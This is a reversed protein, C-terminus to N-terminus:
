RTARPTTTSTLPEAAGCSRLPVAPHSRGVAETIVDVITTQLRATSRPTFAKCVLRRLRNHDAGDRSLLGTTVKDWLRGCTIGQAELALGKPIRFRPDRLVIRALEYSLVESRPAEARNARAFPSGFSDTRVKPITRTSMLSPRCGPMLSPPDTTGIAGVTM